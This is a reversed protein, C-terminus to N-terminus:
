IKQLLDRIKGADDKSPNDQLATEFEKKASPKDGKQLLAMGYHYHFMANKPDKQVLDKFIRVADDSLNKKIYIWGLTDSMALMNPAKQVARQAMSLAQDLDVGEEAEAYALNNLAVPQDPNIKLIQQWIPKAQDRRGTGELLLGLQMLCSTDGPAAQSCRRFTDMATNLDGKRRQTEALRFLLDASNPQQKLLGQYIAIAEDYKEARVDLNAVFIKLDRRQPERDAASQAEKLAQDMHGEAALTETMGALGRGDNPNAKYLSGFIEEAKKYDKDNFALRGVQFQAQPNQPYTKSLFDLEQRAKDKDGMALLATSRTLHAQLNNRDLAITEDAAKLAKAADGKALYIQALKERAAVFDGRLKVAEELQLRAAEIDGKAIDARALNYRLLHNNPNKTVLSQLDNAAMNIQERNGTTLMLAARMAIADNDKPHEKLIAALMNNADRTRSTQSAYLEVLRKQYILEEKPAAKMGQNYEREARDLDHARFFFFDGALLHGEPYTKEDDIQQFVADMEPRRNLLFYHQALQLLFNARKPNNAIKEKLIQEGIDPKNQRMYQIYLLDYMPSFTKDGSIVQR